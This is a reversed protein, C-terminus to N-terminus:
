PLSKRYIQWGWGLLFFIVALSVVGLLPGVELGMQQSRYPLVQCFITIIIAGLFQGFGILYRLEMRLHEEPIIWKLAVPLLLIFVGIGVSFYLGLTQFDIESFYYFTRIQLYLLAVFWMIGPLYLGYIIYASIKKGFYAEIMSFDISIFFLVEAVQIVALNQMVTPNDLWLDIQDMSQEIVWPYLAYAVISVMVTASLRAWLGWHSIQFLLSLAVFTLLLQVVLQM